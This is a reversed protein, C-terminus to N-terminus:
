RVERERVRVKVVEREDKIEGARKRKMESGDKSRQTERHAERKRM